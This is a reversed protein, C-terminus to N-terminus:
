LNLDNSKLIRKRLESLTPMSCNTIKLAQTKYCNYDTHRKDFSLNYTSSIIIAYTYYRPYSIGRIVHISFQEKVNATSLNLNSTM